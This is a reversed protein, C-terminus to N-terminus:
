GSLMVDFFQEVIVHSEVLVFLCVFFILVSFNDVTTSDGKFTKSKIQHRTTQTLVPLM